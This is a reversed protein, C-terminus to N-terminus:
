LLALVGFGRFCRGGGSLGELLVAGELGALAVLLELLPWVDGAVYVLAGAGIREFASYSVQFSKEGM